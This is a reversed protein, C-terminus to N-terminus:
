RLAPGPPRRDAERAGIGLYRELLLTTRAPPATHPTTHHPYPTAHYHPSHYATPPACM